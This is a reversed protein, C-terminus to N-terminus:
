ARVLTFRSMYRLLANKRLNDIEEQRASSMIRYIEGREEGFLLDGNIIGVADGNYIRKVCAFFARVLAIFLCLAMILGWGMICLVLAIESRKVDIKVDTFVFIFLM